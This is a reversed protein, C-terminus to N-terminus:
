RRRRGPVARHGHRDPAHDRECADNTHLTSFVLHGTLAAQIAIEATEGDRIEGVMIVDPDQRLISRLGSAFTLEIKPISRSRASATCSTSSRTRSPSSTASPRTSPALARRLADDDQRQRDPRHGPHHRASQHILRDVMRRPQPRRPRAGRAGLLTAPATSCACARRARRVRDARDLRPHRHGQRRRKSASAATRRCASRPSTSAPWSRSARSSRGAPLAQPPSIVDYLIGDIRFRVPSRRARVARHPHRQRPGEGGPLAALQGAPHDAGRRRRRAPRAAGRARDRDPRAAGGRPRGHARRRHRAACTTPATSRRSSRRRGARRGPNIRRGYLVRLDDLVARARIPSRSACGATRGRRAAPLRLAERVPDAPARGARSRGRARRRRRPVPLGFRDALAAATAPDPLRGVAAGDLALDRSRPGAM